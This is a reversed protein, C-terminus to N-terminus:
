ASFCRVSDSEQIPGYAESGNSNSMGNKGNTSHRKPM